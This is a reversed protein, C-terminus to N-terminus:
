LQAIHMGGDVNIIEGTSYPIQGSALISVAGAVDAPLGWRPIPAIGGAFAADYKDKVGATMDTEIIGPRVEYVMIAEPALRAAWLQTAMAVGAKSICYEGRNVSVRTASTSSVNVITGRVEPRGDAGTTVPRKLMAQAAYQTLFYPGRLNTELVFDYEDVEAELIDKRQRPAVGANNVLLDLRGFRELTADVLRRGDALDGISGHTYASDGPQGEAYAEIEGFPSEAQPKTAFVMVNWGEALLRETIGRGIGRSGGTVIAVKRESM